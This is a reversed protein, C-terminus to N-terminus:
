RDGLLRRGKDDVRRIGDPLPKAPGEAAERRKAERQNLWADAVGADILIPSTEGVGNRSHPLGERCMDRVTDVHCKRHAAYQPVTLLDSAPAEVLQEVESQLQDLSVSLGAAMGAWLSIMGPDTTLLEPLRQRLEPPACSLATSVRHRVADWSERVVDADHTALLAAVAEGIAGLGFPGVPAFVEGFMAGAAEIASVPVPLRWRAAANGRMQEDLPPMVVLPYRPAARLLGLLRSVDEGVM